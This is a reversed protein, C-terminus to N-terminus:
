RSYDAAKWASDCRNTANVEQYQNANYTQNRRAHPRRRSEIGHGSLYTHKLIQYIDFRDMENRFIGALLDLEMDDVLHSKRWRQLNRRIYKSGRHLMRANDDLPNEYPSCQTLCMFLIVGLCWCDNAKADFSPVKASYCESSAFNSKGVKKTTVCKRQPDSYPFREALGFDVIKVDLRSGNTKLLLNQLSLDKHCINRVHLFEVALCIDKFWRKVDAKWHRHRRGMDSEHTPFHQNQLHDLLSGGDGFEM